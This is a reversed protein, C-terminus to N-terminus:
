NIFVWGNIGDSDFQKEYEDRLYNEPMTEIPRWNGNEDKYFVGDECDIIWTM